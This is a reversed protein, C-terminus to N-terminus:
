IYKKLTGFTIEGQTATIHASLEEESLNSLLDLYDDFFEYEFIGDCYTLHALADYCYEPMFTPFFSIHYQIKFSPNLSIRIHDIEVLDIGLNEILHDIANAPIRIDNNEWEGRIPCVSLENIFDIENIHNHHYIEIRLKILKTLEDNLQNILIEKNKM